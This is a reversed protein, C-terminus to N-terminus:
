RFPTFSADLVELRCIQSADPVCAPLYTRVAELLYAPNLSPNQACVVPELVVTHTDPQMVSVSAILPRIDAPAPEGKKKKKMVILADRDFLARLLDACRDPVGADYTMTVRVRLHTLEKIKRESVYAERVRIGEPFCANLRALLADFTVCPDILEFDAIECCSETGVPLPLALSLYAHPNFGETHRVRVGARAFCRQFGRMMDLHSIWVAAGFREYLLRHM